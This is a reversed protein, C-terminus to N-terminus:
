CSFVAKEEDEERILLKVGGKRLSTLRILQGACDDASIMSEIGQELLFGRAMEAEYRMEFIRVTKLEAM